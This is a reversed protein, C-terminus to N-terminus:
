NRFEKLVTEGVSFTTDPFLEAALSSSEVLSPAYPFSPPPKEKTSRAIRVEGGRGGETQSGNQKQRGFEAATLKGWGRGKRRSM